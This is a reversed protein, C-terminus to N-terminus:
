VQLLRKLIEYIDDRDKGKRLGIAVLIVKKEDEVVKFIIRHRMSRISRFGKLEKSLAKGQLKPDQVLKKIRALLVKQVKKPLAYFMDAATETFEIRWSM